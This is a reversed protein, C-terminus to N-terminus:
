LKHLIAHANLLLPKIKKHLKMFICVYLTYTTSLIWKTSHLHYLPITCLSGSRHPISFTLIACTHDISLKLRQTSTKLYKISTSVKPFLFLNSWAYKAPQIRSQFYAILRNPLLTVLVLCGGHVHAYM